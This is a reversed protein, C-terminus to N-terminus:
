QEMAEIEKDLLRTHMRYYNMYQDINALSTGPMAPWINRDVDYNRASIEVIFQSFEHWVNEESLIGNRLEKYRAVLKSKSYTYMLYALRHIAKAAAFETRGTKATYLRSGYPDFGHTADMDYASMFWRVGDYTGYLINRSLADYNNICCTFIFYDFVSNIDVYPALTTEWDAGADIAAQIATNLSTRVTAVDVGDATYELGFDEENLEALAKWRCAALGNDEGAILYETSADGMAFQWGEKPINFTYLGISEGNITIEIPFGDVAGYNPAITRNDTIEGKAIRDQVIQGWLRANVLNRAHSADIWNAKTCFKKQEGWRSETPITSLNGNAKRQANVFKAWEAWGDFGTEFKITYNKKAYRVSSSGQWKCTCAGTKGFMTHNLPVADDKTMGSTDGELALTPLEKIRGKTESNGPDSNGPDSNGPDSNGRKIEVVFEALMEDTIVISTSAEASAAMRALIRVTTDEMITYNQVWAGNDGTYVYTEDEYFYVYFYKNGSSTITDGKKCEIFDSYIRQTTMTGSPKGTSSNFAGRTWDTIRIEGTVEETLRKIDERAQADILEVRNGRSDLFYSAVMNEAM